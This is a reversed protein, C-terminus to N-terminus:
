IKKFCKKIRYEYKKRRKLIIFIVEIILEFLLSLLITIITWAFIKDMEIFNKAIQMQIGISNKTHALVESAITLKVSLSLCSKSQAIVTNLISPIYLHKIRSFVSVKYLKSLEILKPDVQNLANLFASYMLPLLIVIGVLIPSKDSTVYILSVLIIAITPITKFINIIPNILLKATNSLNSIIALLIAFVFSIVFSYIARKLTSDIIYLFNKSSIIQILSEIVTTPYPVLYKKNLKISILTWTIILSLISIITLLTIKLKNPKMTFNNM